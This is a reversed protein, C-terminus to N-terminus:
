DNEGAAGDYLGLHPVSGIVGIEILEALVARADELTHEHKEETLARIRCAECEDAGPRYIELDSLLRIATGRSGASSGALRM